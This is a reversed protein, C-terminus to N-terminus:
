RRTRRLLTGAALLVLMASSPEPILVTTFNIVVDDVGLGSQAATTTSIYNWRFAIFEGETASLNVTDSLATQNNNGNLKQNGGTVLATYDLSSFDTWGTESNILFAASDYSSLIKYQFKMTAATAARFWQEGTYGITASSVDLGSGVEFVIGFSASNGDGVIGQMLVGLARDTPNATSSGMNGFRATGSTFEGIFDKDAANVTAGITVQRTWGAYTVNNQWATTTAVGNWALPAGTGAAAVDASVDLGDFDQSYNHTGLTNILVAGHMAPTGALLVTLIASKLNPKM